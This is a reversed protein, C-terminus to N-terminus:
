IEKEAKENSISLPPPNKHYGLKRKSVDDLIGKHFRAAAILSRMKTIYNSESVALNDLGLVYNDIGGVRDIARLAATTMKFRVWDELGESWVRKNIVNPHWTRKSRKHSHSISHGFQVDKGHYLGNKARKSRHTNPGYGTSNKNKRVFSKIGPGIEVGIGGGLPNVKKAFIGPTDASRIFNGKVAAASTSAASSSASPATPSSGKKNENHASSTFSRFINRTGKMRTEVAWQQKQLHIYPRQVVAARLQKSPLSFAFKLM